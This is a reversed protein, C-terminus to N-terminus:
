KKRDEFRWLCSEQAFRAARLSIKEWPTGLAFAPAADLAAHIVKKLVTWEQAGDDAADLAARLEGAMRKEAQAFIDKSKAEYESFVAKSLKRVITFPIQQCPDSTETKGQTFYLGFWLNIADRMYTSTRDNAKFADAFSDVTNNFIANIISM